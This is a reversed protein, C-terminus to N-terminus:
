ESARAVDHVCHGDPCVVAVVPACDAPMHAAVDANEHLAPYELGDPPGDASEHEWHGGPRYELSREEEQM